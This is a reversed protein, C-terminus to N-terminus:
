WNRLAKVIALLELDYIDYNREAESLTSSYYGIPHRKNDEKWQLLVAGLAFGSANVELEFPKDLEPQSLVPEETVCM